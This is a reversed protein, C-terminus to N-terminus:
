NYKLYPCALVFYSSEKADEFGVKITTNISGATLEIGKGVYFRGKCHDYIWRVLIELTNYMIPMTVVTFSPPLLDLQRASFFNLPNPEHKPIM